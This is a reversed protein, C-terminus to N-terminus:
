PSRRDDRNHDVAHIGLALVLLLLDIILLLLATIALWFLVNAAPGDSTAGALSSAGLLVAFTVLLVPVPMLLGVILRRPIL